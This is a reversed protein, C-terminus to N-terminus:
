RTVAWLNGKGPEHCTSGRFQVFRQVYLQKLVIEWVFNSTISEVMSIILLDDVTKQTLNPMFGRKNDTLHKVIFSERLLCLCVYFVLM